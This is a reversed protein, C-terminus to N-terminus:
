SVSTLLPFFSMRLVNLIFPWFPSCTFLWVHQQLINQGELKSNFITVFALILFLFLWFQFTSFNNLGKISLDSLDGPQTVTATSPCGHIRRPSIPASILFILARILLDAQIYKPSSRHFINLRMSLLRESWSGILM